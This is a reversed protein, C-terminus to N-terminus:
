KYAYDGNHKVFAKAICNAENKLKLDNHLWKWTQRILKYTGRKGKYKVGYSTLFNNRNLHSALEKGSMIAGQSHLFTALKWIYIKKDNM